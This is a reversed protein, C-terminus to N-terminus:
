PKFKKATSVLVENDPYEQLATAWTQLAEDRKGQQWLVEGLHAAIEPDTQTSYARRLYDAAQDLKGMRYKVWGMSDLIYHDDPSLLLAKEILSQAEDLKQNRDALSYGLANYAQAFDPKIIILKRLERESVDIKNLREAAMAYDYVLDPTNPLTNVANELLAYAEQYRKAQNLLSAQTQVVIVQQENTVDPLNDLMKIAADPGQKRAILGANGIKAELYREGPQVKNFYEQAKADNKQKEAVQALYLYVQDPDKFGAKLADQFYKDADAYEGGQFSLLGVVVLIEPNNNSTKVLKLFEPKAEAFRKQNVLLRAMSLRVENADPNKSLFERYYQIAADASQSYLIQGRLIANMEWGPRLKDATALESLALESNGAVWASNGVTFHAEPLQPYPQALEQVLTLVAAKDQQRALLTNLYLFGNARTDDKALLKQLFPKAEDLRGAAILMQMSAQQAEISDPDLKAWLDVSQSALQANNALVATKAAREALRPDRTSQALELFINSALNLDGRQGAIEGVLYRFVFEGTVETQMAPEAPAVNEVTPTLVVEPLASDPLSSDPTRTDPLKPAAAEAAHAHQAIACALLMTVLTAIAFSKIRPAVAAQAQQPQHAYRSQHPSSM